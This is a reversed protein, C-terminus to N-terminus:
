PPLGEYPQIAGDMTIARGMFRFAQTMCGIKVMFFM